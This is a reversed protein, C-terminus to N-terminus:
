RRLGTNAERWKNGKTTEWREDGWTRPPKDDSMAELGQHSTMAWRRLDKTAQWREDSMEELGQHSTMAWRQINGDSMVKLLHWIGWSITTAQLVPSGWATLPIAFPIHSRYEWCPICKTPIGLPSPSSQNPQKRQIELPTNTPYDTNPSFNSFCTPKHM